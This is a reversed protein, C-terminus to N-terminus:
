EKYYAGEDPRIFTLQLPIQFTKSDFICVISLNPIPTISSTDVNISFSTDNIKTIIHGTIINMEAIVQADTSPALTNFDTFSVTDGTILNHDETFNVITIAGYTFTCFLRDPDFNILNIPNGFSITIQNLTTIPKDFKFEGNNSNYPQLNIFNGDISVEFIIHFRRNNRAIFAQSNFPQNFDLTIQRFGNDASGDSPYPIRFPYVRIETIDRVVGTYTFNGQATNANNDENWVFSNIGSSASLNRQRSDLYLYNYSKLADPNILTLLDYRNKTGIISDISVGPEPVVIPPPAVIPAPQIFTPSYVAGSEATTGINDRLIAHVNELELGPLQQDRARRISIWRDSLRTIIEQDSWNQLNGMYFKNTPDFRYNYAANSANNLMARVSQRENELLERNIKQEITKIIRFITTANDVRRFDATIERDFLDPYTEEAGVSDDESDEDKSYVPYEYTDRDRYFSNNAM